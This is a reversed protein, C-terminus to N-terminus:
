DDDRLLNGITTVRGNDDRVQMGGHHQRVAENFHKDLGATSGRFPPVEKDYKSGLEVGRQKMLTNWQGLSSIYVGRRDGKGPAPLPAIHPDWFPIFPRYEGQPKHSGFQGWCIPWDGVHIKGGCSDCTSFNPEPRGLHELLEKMEADDWLDCM